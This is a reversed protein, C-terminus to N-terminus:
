ERESLGVALAMDSARATNCPPAAPKEKPDPMAAM